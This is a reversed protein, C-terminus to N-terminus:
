EVEALPGMVLFRAAEMTVSSWWWSWLWGRISSRLKLVGVVAVVLLVAGVGPELERSGRSVVRSRMQRQVGAGLTGRGLFPLNKERENWCHLGKMERGSPPLHFDYWRWRRGTKSRPSGFRIVKEGRKIERFVQIKFGGFRALFETNRKTARQLLM